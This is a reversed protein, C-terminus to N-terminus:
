GHTSQPMASGSARSCDRCWYNLGDKSKARRNFAEHPKEIECQGCRKM